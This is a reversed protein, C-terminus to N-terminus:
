SSIIQRNKQTENLNESIQLDIVSLESNKKNTLQNLITNKEFVFPEARKKRRNEMWVLVIVTIIISGITAIYPIAEVKKNGFLLESFNMLPFIIITFSILLTLCGCGLSASSGVNIKESLPQIKQNITHNWYNEREIRKNKLSELERPLRQLALEAATKDTGTQVRSIAEVVQRLVVIGGGREVIQQSGCYSCNFKDVNSPIELNSNCSACNLNYIKIESM